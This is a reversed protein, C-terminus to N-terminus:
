RLPIGARRSEEAIIGAVREPQEEHALHGLGRLVEVRVKPLRDRLRFAESPPIARDQSGVVLLLDPKLRPLDREFTELRWNAMMGLAGAVHGPNQTLRRYLEVGAADIRSGTGHLLREVVRRDGARWAFLRSAASTTALARAMPAFILGSIGRMPSLAGNLSILAKPDIRGDLCMQALIAAGASHGAVLVPRADLTDLLASLSKAMGGLSLGDMAPMATFGHGPLDPAMVTFREALIPALGRWSHTSAGTGHVLLIAPGEGMVQVHFRLGGAEVFCSAHRNPWDRGDSEFNLRQVM